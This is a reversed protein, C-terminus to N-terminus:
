VKASHAHAGFVARAGGSWLLLAAAESRAPSVWGDCWLLEM